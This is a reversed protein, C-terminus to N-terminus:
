NKLYSDFKYILYDFDLDELKSKPFTIAMLIKFEAKIVNEIHLAVGSLDDGLSYFLKSHGPTDRIRDKFETLLDLFNKWTELKSNEFYFNINNIQHMVNNEGYIPQNHAFKISALSGGLTFFLKLDDFFLLDRILPSIQPTNFNFNISLYKM